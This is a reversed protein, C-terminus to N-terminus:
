VKAEQPISLKIINIVFDLAGHQADFVDKCAEASRKYFDNDSLLKDAIEFFGQLNNVVFGAKFTTLLKYIDKFNHTDPGSIVPRNWIAAELPNHGGTKCFSGGIFAIYACSYMKALEGLTDLLIIDYENFSDNNSRLGYKLGRNNLIKKIDDLRTLHRSAHLLKLDPHKSKLKEYVDFVIEDEGAHTSGALLIRGGGNDIKIDVDPPTIDFKLNGMVQTKEPSSGLYLFKSNDDDSQTFIGTYNNLVKKFFFKFPKYYKFSSDSIRGNITYIEISRRKCVSSFYPWIETEAIFVIKPNIKNLFKEVIVPCDAPYYTIFDVTDALKKHAIEQGTVTGTTLVIKADPFVERTKRLLKELAIVEGVSVGHFMIVPRTDARWNEPAKFFGLQTIYRVKRNFVM